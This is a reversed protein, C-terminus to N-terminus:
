NGDGNESFTERANRAIKRSLEIYMDQEAASMGMLMGRCLKTFEGVHFQYVEHGKPTLSINIIRRDESSRDRKVLDKGELKDILGTVTSVAVRLYDAIERMICNKQQGLFGVAKTEMLSLNEVSESTAANISQFHYIIEEFSKHLQRAKATIDAM